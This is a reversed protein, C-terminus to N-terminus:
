SLQKNINKLDNLWMKEITIKTITDIEMNVDELKVKIKELEDNSLKIMPINLLYNYSNDIKLFGNDELSKNIDLIKVNNIKIKKSVVLNLFNYINDMKEKKIILENLIFDKRKKYYPLRNDYFEDIIEYVSNYKKIKNNADFLHMNTLNLKSSLNFFEILDIDEYSNEQYLYIKINVDEDNCLKVYNKIKKDDVLIDLFNYHNDNWTGIPLETISLEYKSIRNIIGQTVFYDNIEFNIINGKFKNYYPNIKINKKKNLLKNEIYTV